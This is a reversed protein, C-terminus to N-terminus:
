MAFHPSPEPSILCRVLPLFFTFFQCFFDLVRRRGSAGTFQLSECPPFVAITPAKIQWFIVLVTLPPKMFILVASLAAVQTEQKSLLAENM